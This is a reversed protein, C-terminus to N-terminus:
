ASRFIAPGPKDIKIFPSTEHSGCLLRDHAERYEIREPGSQLKLTLRYQDGLRKSRKGRKELKLRQGRKREEEAPRGGVGGGWPGGCGGVVGGVGGGGGM